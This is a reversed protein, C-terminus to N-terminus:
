PTIPMPQICVSDCIRVLEAVSDAEMKEMVRARHVKVTKEAIKLHRAIQKNLAGSIVCRLVEEERPTLLALRTRIDIELEREGRDHSDVALAQSLTALLDSEDVPKTLFHFAGRKMANVSMPIDGHGTLFIVPLFCGRKRLIELLEMGDMGPMKMDVLLCGHKDFKGRALYDEGSSYTEVCYGASAILRSLGKQVSSDDDIVQIIASERPM